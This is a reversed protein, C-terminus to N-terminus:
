CKREQRQGISITYTSAAGCIVVKTRRDVEKSQNYINCASYAAKNIIQDMNFTISNFKYSFFGMTKDIKGNKDLKYLKLKTKDLFEIFPIKYYNKTTM